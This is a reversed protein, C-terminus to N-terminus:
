VERQMIDKHKVCVQSSGIPGISLRASPAELGEEEIVRRRERVIWESFLKPTTTRYKPCYTACQEPVYILYSALFRMAEEDITTFEQRCKECKIHV